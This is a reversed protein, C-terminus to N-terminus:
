LHGPGPEQGMLRAWVIRQILWRGDPARAVDFEWRTAVLGMSRQTETLCALSVHAHDGDVTESDLMTVTNSTIRETTAIRDLARTVRAAPESSSEPTGRHWTVDPALCALMGPSDGDVASAVFQEIAREGHEAPTVTLWSAVLAAAACLFGAGAIILGRGNERHWAWWGVVTSGFCLWFLISWVHADVWQLPAIALTTSALTPFSPSGM